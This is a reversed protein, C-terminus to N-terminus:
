EEPEDRSIQWCHGCPRRAEGPGSCQELRASADADLTVALNGFCPGPVAADPRDAPARSAFAAGCARAYGTCFLGSDGSSCTIRALRELVAPSPHHPSDTPASVVAVGRLYREIWKPLNRASGHHPVFFLQHAFDMDALRATERAYRLTAPTADGPLLARGRDSDRRDESSRLFRFLAVLSTSNSPLRGRIAARVDAAAVIPASPALIRIDWDFDEHWALYPPDQRPAPRFDDVTVASQPIGLDLAAECARALDATGRHLSAAPYILREAPNGAQACAHLLEALGLTHDSHAHSAAVFRLRRRDLLALARDLHAPDRTGWDFVGFSGDPLELLCANGLGM